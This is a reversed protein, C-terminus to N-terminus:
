ENELRMPENVQAERTPFHGVFIPDDTPFLFELIVSDKDNPQPGSVNARRISERMTM